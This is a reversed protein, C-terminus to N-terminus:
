LFRSIAGALRANNILLAVNADVVKKGMREALKALLFPTVDKGTVNEKEMLALIESLISEMEGGQVAYEDPIPNTLLLAKNLGIEKHMRWYYAVQNPTEFRHRLPLNTKGTYFAPFVDTQYGLVPVGLTELYELTKPLDLISKAGSSVVIIPITALAQMDASIDWTKEVFRHVGGIGGTAFIEIGVKHAIWMTASVTTGANWNGYLALPIDKISVKKRNEVTGLFEIEDATLGVKIVGDVIGITAPVAGTERVAKEMKLVVEVNQPYPLGHTLVATELAVVHAKKVIDKAVLVRSNM